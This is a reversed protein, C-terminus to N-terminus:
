RGQKRLDGDALPAFAAELRGAADATLDVHGRWRADDRAPFDGRWHSGRTEKRVRAAHLLATAVTVLNTAEWAETGPASGTDRALEAVTKTADALGCATRLVGAEE